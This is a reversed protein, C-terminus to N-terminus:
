VRATRVLVKLNKSKVAYVNGGNKRSIPNNNNNNNNNNNDGQVM